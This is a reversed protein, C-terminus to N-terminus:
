RRRLRIRELFGPVLRAAPRDPSGPRDLPELVTIPAMFWPQADGLLPSHVPVFAQDRLHVAFDTSVHGRQDVAGTGQWPMLASGGLGALGCRGPSPISLTLRIRPRLLRDYGLDHDTRAVSAYHLAADWAARLVARRDHAIESPVAPGVHYLDAYLIRPDVAGPPLPVSHVLSRFLDAVAPGPTGPAAPDLTRSRALAARPDRAVDLDRYADELAARHRAEIAGRARVAGPGLEEAAVEDVDRIELIEGAGVLRLYRDLCALYPATAARPRVRFHNGDTLVTIRLGPPYVAAVAAALERLRLLLGFEALDPLPGLAKLGSDAQKVPFAPLVARIPEGREVRPRIDREAVALPYADRAGRRFRKAGLVRHVLSPATEGTGLRAARAGTEYGAALAEDVLRDVLATSEARSLRVAHGALVPRERLEALPLEAVSTAHSLVPVHAPAPAPSDARVAAHPPVPAPAPRPSREFTSILETGDEPEDGPVYGPLAVAVLRAGPLARALAARNEALDDFVAVVDLDAARALHVAKLAAVPRDRDDPMMLLRPRLLGGRALVEETWARVRERRGTNFLVAGGRDEVDRVFRVVGETLEDWGLNSWPRHFARCFDQRLAEPDVEPYARRLGNAEVFREWAPPDGTPLLSLLEPHALELIGDPAGPRPGGVRRAAHLTRRRPDLTVFDLDLLVAPQRAGPRARRARAREEVLDLVRRLTGDQGPPLSHVYPALAHDGRLLEATEPRLFRLEEAAVRWVRSREAGDLSAAVLDLCRALDRAARDADGAGPATRPLRGTVVVRGTAVAGGGTGGDPALEVAVVDPDTDVLVGLRDLATRFVTVLPRVLFEAPGPLDTRRGKPEYRHPGDPAVLARLPVAVTGGPYAPHAPWPGGPGAVAAYLRLLPDGTVAGTLVDDLRLM